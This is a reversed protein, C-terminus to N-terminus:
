TPHPPPKMDLHLSLKLPVKILGTSNRQSIPPVNWAMQKQCQASPFLARAPWQMVVRTQFTQCLPTDSCSTMNTWSLKAQCEESPVGFPVRNSFCLAWMTAGMELIEATKM